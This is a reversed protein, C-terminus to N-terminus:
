RQVTHHHEVAQACPRGRAPLQGRWSAEGSVMRKAVTENSVGRGTVAQDHM